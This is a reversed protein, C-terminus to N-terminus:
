GGPQIAGAELRYEPQFSATRREAHIGANRRGPRLVFDRPTEALRDVNDGDRIGIPLAAADAFCPEVIADDGATLNRNDIVASRMSPFHQDASSARRSQRRSM